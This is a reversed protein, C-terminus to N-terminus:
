LSRRQAVPASTSMFNHKWGQNAVTGSPTLLNYPPGVCSAWWAGRNHCPRRVTGSGGRNHSQQPVTEQGHWERQGSTEQLVPSRRDAWTAHDPSWAVVPAVRTSRQQPVTEQGHWERQGSTEQLVPSRRDAWTAHDPSWAVVSAVVPSRLDGSTRSVQPRGLHCPGSVMGCCLWLLLLTALCDEM